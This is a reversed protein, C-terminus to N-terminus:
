KLSEATAAVISPAASDNIIKDLWVDAAARDGAALYKRAVLLAASYYYPSSRTNLDSLSKEFERPDM